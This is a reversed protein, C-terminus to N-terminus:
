LENQFCGRCGHSPPWMYRKIWAHSKGKEACEAQASARSTYAWEAHYQFHTCVLLRKKWTMTTLVGHLHCLVNRQGHWRSTSHLVTWPYGRCVSRPTTHLIGYLNCHRNGYFLTYETHFSIQQIHVVNNFYSDELRLHSTLPVSSFYNQVNYFCQWKYPVTPPFITYSSNCLWYTWHKSNM